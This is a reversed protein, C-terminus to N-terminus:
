KQPVSKVQLRAHIYFNISDIKVTTWTNDSVLRQYNFKEDCASLIVITDM